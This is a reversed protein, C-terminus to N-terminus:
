KSNICSFFAGLVWVQITLLPGLLWWLRGMFGFMSPYIITNIVLLALLLLWPYNQWTFVAREPRSEAANENDPM